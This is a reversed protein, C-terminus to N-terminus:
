HGGSAVQVILGSFGEDAIVLNSGGGLVFLPLARTARGCTRRECM